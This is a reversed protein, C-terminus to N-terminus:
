FSIDEITINDLLNKKLKFRRNMAVTDIEPCNLSVSLRKPREFNEKSINLNKDAYCSKMYLAWSPLSM